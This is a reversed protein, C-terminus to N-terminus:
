IFNYLDEAVTLGGRYGIITRNMITREMIPFAMLCHHIGNESCYERENSSGVQMYIDPYKELAKIIKYYDSEFIVEPPKAYELSQIRHIIRNKDEERYM